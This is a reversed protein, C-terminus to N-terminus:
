EAINICVPLQPAADAANGKKSVSKEEAAMKRAISREMM